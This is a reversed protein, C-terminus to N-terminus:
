GEVNFEAYYIDETFDGPQRLDMIKKGIRYYGESLEGYLWKWDVEFTTRENKNIVIAESTWCVNEDPLYGLEQWKGDVNKEIKYWSGTNLGGTPFGGFQEITLTLSTKTANDAYMLIGWKDSIEPFIVKIDLMHDKLQSSFFYKTINEFTVDLTNSLVIYESDKVANPHRGKIKFAYKYKAANEGEIKKFVMWSGNMPVEKSISTANQYGDAEFNSEGSNKPVEFEDAKKILHGDLTGCRYTLDSLLGTNFYLSGEINMLQISEKVSTNDVETVFIATPGDSGGIIGVSHNECGSLVFLVLLLCIVKKM